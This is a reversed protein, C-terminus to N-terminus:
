PLPSVAGQVERPNLIAKIVDGPYYSKGDVKLHNRCMILKVAGLTEAITTAIKEIDAQQREILTRLVALVRSHEGDDLDDLLACFSELAVFTEDLLDGLDCAKTNKAILEQEAVKEQEAKRQARECRWCILQGDEVMEGCTGCFDSAQTAQPESAKEPTIIENEAM